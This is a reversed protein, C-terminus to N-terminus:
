LGANRQRIREEQCWQKINKTWRQIKSKKKPFVLNSDTWERYFFFNKNGMGNVLPAVECLGDKMNTLVKYKVYSKAEAVEQGSGGNPWIPVVVTHMSTPQSAISNGHNASNFDQLSSLATRAESLAVADETKEEPVLVGVVVYRLHRLTGNIDLAERTLPDFDDELTGEAEIGTTRILQRQTRPNVGTHCLLLNKRVPRVAVDTPLNNASASTGSM